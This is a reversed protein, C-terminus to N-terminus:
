NYTTVAAQWNTAHWDEDLQDQSLLFRDHGFAGTATAVVDGDGLSTVAGGHNLVHWGEDLIGQSLLFRDENRAENSVLSVSVGSAIADAAAHGTIAWGFSVQPFGVLDDDPQESWPFEGWPSFDWRRGTGLTPDYLRIGSHDSLMGGESLLSDDLVFRRLDYQVSYVRQLRSRVPASIRALGVLRQLADFGQTPEALGVMFESWRFTGAEPEDVWGTLNLWSLGITLAQPTGRIRQWLIGEALARREDELFPLLEGLGYEYILWPVVSDPIDLRKATRIIPVPRGARVLSSTARSFDRELQTANPPLLDYRSM